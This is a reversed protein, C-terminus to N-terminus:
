NKLTGLYQALRTRQSSLEQNDQEQNDNESSKRKYGSNRLSINMHHNLNQFNIKFRTLCVIKLLFSNDLNTIKNNKSTNM